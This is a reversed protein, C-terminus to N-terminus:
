RLSEKEFADLEVLWFKISCELSAQPWVACDNGLSTAVPIQRTNKSSNIVTELSGAERNHLWEGAKRSDVGAALPVEGAGGEAVVWGLRMRYMCRLEDLCMIHLKVIRPRM